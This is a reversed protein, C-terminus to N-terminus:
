GPRAVLPRQKFAAAEEPTVRRWRRTRLRFEVAEPKLFLSTVHRGEDNFVHTRGQPGFVVWTQTKEDHYLAEATAERADELAKHVPRNEERRDEAHRTRRQGQRHGRELFEALRRLVVPVRRMAAQVDDPRNGARASVARREIAELARAALERARYVWPEWDSALLEDFAEATLRGALTNLRVQIAGDRGRTEIAQFTLALRREASVDGRHHPLLLYGVAVQGLISYTKSSRGFSSLQAQRLGHGLQVMALVDPRGAFLRDVREDRAELFVQHLDTWEPTGTASYGKFVSLSGPPVSHECTSSGCRFCHCHGARYAERTAGADQLQRIVQDPLPPDFELAWNDSPKVRVRLHVDIDDAAPMGAVGFQDMQVDRILTRLADAVAKSRREARSLPRVASPDPPPASPPTQGAPNTEEPSSM